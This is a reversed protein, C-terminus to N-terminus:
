VTYNSSLKNEIGLLPHFNFAEKFIDKVIKNVFIIHDEISKTYKIHILLFSIFHLTKENM